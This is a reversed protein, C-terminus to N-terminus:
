KETLCYQGLKKGTEPDAGAAYVDVNDCDYMGYNKPLRVMVYNGPELVTCLSAGKNCQLAFTTKGETATAQHVTVIVVGNNVESGKVTVSSKDQAILPLAALLCLFSIAKRMLM